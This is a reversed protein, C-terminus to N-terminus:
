GGNMCSCSHKACLARSSPHSHIPPEEGTAHRASQACSSAFPAAQRAGWNGQAHLSLKVVSLSDLSAKLPSSNRSSTKRQLAPTIPVPFGSHKTAACGDGDFSSM